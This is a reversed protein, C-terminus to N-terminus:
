AMQALQAVSRRRNRRMAVGMGGFGLLMLAWTAPEPVATAVQVGGLRLQRFDSIGTASNITFGNLVDGGTALLGIFNQGNGLSFNYSFATGNASTGFITGTADGILNFTATTFTIGGVTMYSLNNLLGSTATIMAQGSADANLADSTSM